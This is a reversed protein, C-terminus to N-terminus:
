MPLVEISQFCVVFFTTRFAHEAGFATLNVAIQRFSQVDALVRDRGVRFRETDSISVSFGQKDIHHLLKANSM